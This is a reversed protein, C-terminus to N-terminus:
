ASTRLFYYSVVGAIISSTLFGGVGFEHLRKTTALFSILYVFGYFVLGAVGQVFVVVWKPYKEKPVSLRFTLTLLVLNMASTPEFRIWHFLILMALCIIIPSNFGSGILLLVTVYAFTSVIRSGFRDTWISRMKAIYSEDRV